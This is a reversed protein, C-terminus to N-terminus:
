FKRPAANTFYLIEATSSSNAIPTGHYSCALRISPALPCKTPNQAFINEPAVDSVHWMEAPFGPKVIPTGPYSHACETTPM